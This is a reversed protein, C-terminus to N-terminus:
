CLHEINRKYWLTSRYQINVSLFISIRKTYKFTSEKTAIGIKYKQIYSLQDKVLIPVSNSTQVTFFMQAKMSTKGIMRPPYIWDEM